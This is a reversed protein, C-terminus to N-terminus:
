NDAIVAAAADADVVSYAASDEACAATESADASAHNEKKMKGNVDKLM